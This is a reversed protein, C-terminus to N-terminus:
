TNLLDENYKPISADQMNTIDDQSVNRQLTELSIGSTSTDSGTYGSPYIIAELAVMKETLQIDATSTLM